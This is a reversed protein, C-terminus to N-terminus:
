STCMTSLPGAPRVAAGRTRTASTVRGPLLTGKGDSHCYSNDCTGEVTYDFGFSDVDNTVGQTYNADTIMAGNVEAPQYNGQDWPGKAHTSNDPHCNGCGFVYATASATNTAGLSTAATSTNYHVDHRLALGGSNDADHCGDCGLAGAGWLPGTTGHCYTNDCGKDGQYVGTKGGYSKFVV